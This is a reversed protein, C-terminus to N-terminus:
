IARLNHMSVLGGEQRIERVLTQDPKRARGQNKIVELRHHPWKLSVALGLDNEAIQEGDALRKWLVGLNKSPRCIGAHLPVNRNAM